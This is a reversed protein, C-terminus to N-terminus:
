CLLAGELRLLKEKVDLGGGYGTLGGNAGVVRHCPVVIAVPNNRNALGVARFAKPSGVARAIDGYSRTEGYPIELLARWCRMEFETGQLDLPLDFQRRTGAFYEELERRCARTKEESEIWINRDQAPIQGRDFELRALGRDTVAVALPGVPSPFKWYYFTVM